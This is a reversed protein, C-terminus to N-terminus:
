IFLLTYSDDVVRGNVDLTVAYDMGLSGDGHQAGKLHGCEHTVVNAFSHPADIFRRSNIYVRSLQQDTFSLDGEMAADIIVSFRPVGMIGMIRRAVSVQDGTMAVCLALCAFLTICSFM